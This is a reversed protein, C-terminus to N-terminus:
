RSQLSFPSSGQWSACGWEKGSFAWLSGQGNPLSFPGHSRCVKRSPSTSSNGSPVLPKRAPSIASRRPAPQDSKSSLLPPHPQTFSSSQWNNCTSTKAAIHCGHEKFCDVKRKYDAASLKPPCRVPEWPHHPWFPLLTEPSFTFLHLRTLAALSIASPLKLSNSPRLALSMFLLWIVGVPGQQCHTM